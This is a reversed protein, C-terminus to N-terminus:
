SGTLIVGPQNPHVAACYVSDSHGDFSVFSLDPATQLDVDIDDQADFGAESEEDDMPATDDVEVETLMQDDYVQDEDVFNSM